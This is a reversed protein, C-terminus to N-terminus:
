KDPMPSKPEAAGFCVPYCDLNKLNVVVCSCSKSFAPICILRVKQGQDGTYLKTQFNPQNGAFFIDPYETIIFPDEQYYPFCSLTDPCTPALHAWELTHQLIDLPDTLNSYRAIDEIPQGSTGLMRRGGIECDYPNSVGHFTEYRSAQPLMCYHLPQQPMMHNTPDFEGPMVDIDISSTLQVLFDDLLKTAELTISDEVDTTYINQLVPVKFEAYGRISNGAIIVRVASAQREQEGMDGLFGGIWDVFLQLPLLSDSSNVLDLGSLFVVFRDEKLQLPREVPESLGTWCFDDVIFKGDGEEHGYVACVVGTVVLHVNLNGILRIRQLEDELILQDHEDVFHTRSPQPILQHIHILKMLQQLVNSGLSLLMFNSNIIIIEASPICFFFFFEMFRQKNYTMKKTIIRIKQINLAFLDNSEAAFPMNLINFIRVTYLLLSKWYVM